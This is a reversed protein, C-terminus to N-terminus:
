HEPAPSGGSSGAGKGPDNPEPQQEPQKPAAADKHEQESSKHRKPRADKHEADDHTSSKHDAKVSVVTPPADGAVVSLKVEHHTSDEVRRAFSAVDVVPQGDVAVVLQPASVGASALPQGVKSLYAGGTFTALRWALGPFATLATSGLVQMTQAYKDVLARVADLNVDFRVFVLFETGPGPQKAYEEWYWDSRQAPVAAGGTAQLVQVARRRAARVVEAATSYAAAAKADSSRDVTAAQLATLAKNRAESYAPIVTDKFAPESIKLGVTSALEELAADTAETVGEDKNSRYSSIGVCMLRNVMDHCYASSPVDAIIWDPRTFTPKSPPEVVPAPDVPKSAESRQNALKLTILVAASALL